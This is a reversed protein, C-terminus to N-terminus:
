WEIEGWWALLATLDRVDAVGDRNFDGRHPDPQDFWVTLFEDLDASDVFGDLNLDARAFECSDLVGDADSDEAGGLIDCADRRGNGDCDRSGATEECPDGVHDVPCAQPRGSYTIFCAVDGDRCADLKVGDSATIRVRLAALSDGELAGMILALNMLDESVVITEEDLADPCAHAHARLVDGVALGNLSVSLFQGSGGLDARARVTIRAGEIALPLGRFLREHAVGAGIPGLSGTALDVRREICSVALSHARGASVQLTRTLHTPPSCQGGTGDGWAIISGDELAAVTHRAGAAIATVGRLEDPASCQGFLDGGWCQVSGDDRLAVSHEEGAAVAVASDLWIPASCQGAVDSGWCAVRGDVRVALSHAEGASIALAAGITWPVDCQGFETSGWAVVSGGVRMALSHAGGAAIDVASGLLQPVDCQGSGNAGWAIVAGDPKRALTHLRGAAVQAIGHAHAPVVSQGFDRLGKKEATGAGWCIVEGYATLAVSHFGGAAVQRVPGLSAPPECQGDGSSGWHALVGFDGAHAGTHAAFALALSLGGGVITSRDM